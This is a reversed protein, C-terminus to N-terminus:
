SRATSSPAWPDRPLADVHRRLDEVDQAFRPDPLPGARLVALVDKWTRQSRGGGETPGIRAVARGHREVEFTQREFEVENLVERFRKAAVTASITRTV